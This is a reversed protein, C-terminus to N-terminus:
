ILHVLVAMTWLLVGLYHAKMGRVKSAFRKLVDFQAFCFLIMWAAFFYYGAFTYRGATRESMSFVGIYIVSAGLFCLSLRSRVFLKLPAKDAKFLAAIAVATWPLAYALYNIFYYHFNFIKQIFFPHTAKNLARQEIQINWFVSFFPAGTWSRFVTEYIWGSAAILIASIFMTFFWWFYKREESVFFGWSFLLFGFIVFPGKIWMLALCSLVGLLPWWISKSTKIGALLSLASFFFLGAEHNARVTYSITLPLFILAPLLFDNENKNLHSASKWCLFFAGLLFGMELIHLAHQSPVGSKALASGMVIQGPLQDRMYTDPAFGWYNQGWKATLIEKWPQSHYRTVLTSYYKSDNSKSEFRSLCVLVSVILFTLTWLLIKKITEQQM